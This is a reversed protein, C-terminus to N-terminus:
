KPLLKILYRITEPHTEESIFLFSPSVNFAECLKNLAKRKPLVKGQEWRTISAPNSSQMENVLDEETWGNAYRLIRIMLGPPKLGDKTFQKLQRMKRNVNINM